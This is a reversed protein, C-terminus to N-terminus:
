RLDPEMAKLDCLMCRDSDSYCQYLVSHGCKENLIEKGDSLVPQQDIKYEENDRDRFGTYKFVASNKTSHLFNFYTKYNNEKLYQMFWLFDSRKFFFDDLKIGTHIPHPYLFSLTCGPVQETEFETINFSGDRM